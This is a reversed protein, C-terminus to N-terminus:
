PTTAPIEGANLPLLSTEIGAMGSKELSSAGELFLRGARAIRGAM